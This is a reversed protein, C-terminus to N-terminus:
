EVDDLYIPQTYSLSVSRDLLLTDDEEHKQHDQSKEEREPTELQTKKSYSNNNQSESAFLFPLFLTFCITRLCCKKYFLRLLECFFAISFILGVMLLLEEASAGGEEADSVVDEVMNPIFIDGHFPLDKYHKEDVSQLPIYPQPYPFFTSWNKVLNVWMRNRLKHYFIFFSVFINQM